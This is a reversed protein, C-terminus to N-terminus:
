EKDDLLESYFKVLPIIATEKDYGSEFMSESNDYRDNLMQALELIKDRWLQTDLPLYYCDFVSNNPVYESVIQNLHSAQAELLVLPMGEHFSPLLFIDFASYYKEIEQCSSHFSIRNELGLEKCYSICQEKKEGDGVLLLHFRDDLKGMLEILFKQNKQGNFAGIHGLLIQCNIDKRIENRWLMNYAFRKSDIYNKLVHFNVDTGFMSLGADKSCALLLDSNDIIYKRKYSILQNYIYNNRYHIVNHSHCIIKAGTKKFFKIYEYALHINATNIHVVDYRTTKSFVRKLDKAVEFYQTGGPAINGTYVCTSDSYVKRVEKYPTYVACNNQPFASIVDRVFVPTGTLAIDCAICYLIKM